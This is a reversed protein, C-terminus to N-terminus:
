TSLPAPYGVELCTAGPPCVRHSPVSSEGPGFFPYSLHLAACRELRSSVAQYVAEMGSLDNGVTDFVIVEASRAWAAELGVLTRPNWSLTRVPTDSDIGLRMLNAQAECAPLNGVRALWEGIRQRHLWEKPGTPTAPREVWCVKGFRSIAPSEQIGTLVRILENKDATAQAPLHLCVLQGCKLEFPPLYLSGLQL